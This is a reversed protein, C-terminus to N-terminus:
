VRLFLWGLAFTLGAAVTPTLVWAIGIEGLKGKGVAATGKVLGAGAVGGVVAQTTSAPIGFQNFAQVIFAAGFLAAFATVADLSTIGTGVTEMVNRSYTIAGVSLAIGGFLAILESSLNSGNGAVASVLGMATAADNTGLTFALFAGVGVVLFGFVRNLILTSSIRRLAPGLSRYLVYAILAAAAPALVWALAINGLVGFNVSTDPAETPNLYSLLLGAGIVSGVISQSTSVPLKLKTATTVWAGAAFLAIVAIQPIEELPNGKGSVVIGSGVTEMVRGGRLVAGLLVFLIMISVAQRYPIVRSGVPAGMANAADNSGINWGVYFGVALAALM